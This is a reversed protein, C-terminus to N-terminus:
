KIIKRIVFIAVVAIASGIIALAKTDGAKADDVLGMAQEKGQNLKDEAYARAEEKLNDPHLRGALENVTATLEERVRNMDADIQEATRTDEIGKPAEYDVAKKQSANTM